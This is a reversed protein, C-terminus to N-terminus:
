ATLVPWWQALKQRQEPTFKRTVIVLHGQSDLQKKGDEDRLMVRYTKKTFPQDAPMYRPDLGLEFDLVYCAVPDSANPYYGQEVVWARFRAKIEQLEGSM